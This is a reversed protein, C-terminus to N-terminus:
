QGDLVPWGDVWEIAEIGMEFDGATDYSHYAMLGNSISQGGSAVFDGHGALVLTGGGDTLATGEADVFPGTPSESRGVRINYTSDAGACCVDWSTFLYYMGDHETLTPGEIGSGGRGALHIAEAGDVAKGTAPDLEVAYIGSWWSGFAMFRGEDTDLISADIANYPDGENSEWVLGQDDWGYDDDTPDLTENTALGIVSHQNGFTSASYYMSYLSREEDWFVEPAWINDVGPVEETVWAPKTDWMTGADEWTAGNDNSTRITVNGDGVPGYGTAFVYWPEGEECSTVLAPDHAGLSGTLTGPASVAGDCNQKAQAAQSVESGHNDAAGATPLYVALGAAALAAAGLGAALTKPKTAM